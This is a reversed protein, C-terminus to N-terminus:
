SRGTIVVETGRRINLQESVKDAVLTIRDNHNENTLLKKSNKKTKKVDGWLTSLNLAKLSCLFCDNWPISILYM